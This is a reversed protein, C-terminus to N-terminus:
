VVVSEEHQGGGAGAGSANGMAPEAAPTGRATGAGARSAQLAKTRVGDASPFANAQVSPQMTVPLSQASRRQQELAAQSLAMADQMRPSMAAAQRREPGRSGADGPAGSHPQSAHTQPSGMAAESHHSAPNVGGPWGSAATSSAPADDRSQRSPAGAPLSRRSGRAAKQAQEPSVLLHLSENTRPPSDAPASAMQSPYHVVGPPLALGSGSTQAHQSASPEEPQPLALGSASGFYPLPLQHMPEAAHNRMDVNTTLMDSVPVQPYSSYDADDGRDVASEDSPENNPEQGLSFGAQPEEGISEDGQAEVEVPQGAMQAHGHVEGPPERPPSPM